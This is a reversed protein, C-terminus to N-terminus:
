RESQICYEVCSRAEYYNDCGVKDHNKRHAQLIGFIGLWWRLVLGKSGM